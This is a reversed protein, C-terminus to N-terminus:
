TAAGTMVVSSLNKGNAPTSTPERIEPICSDAHRKARPTATIGALAHSFHRQGPSCNVGHRLLLRLRAEAPVFM